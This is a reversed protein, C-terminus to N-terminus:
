RCRDGLRACVPVQYPGLDMVKGSYQPTTPDEARQEVVVPDPQASADFAGASALLSLIRDDREEM